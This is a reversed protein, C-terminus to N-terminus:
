KYNQMGTCMFTDGPYNNRHSIHAYKPYLWTIKAGRKKKDFDTSVCSLYICILILNITGNSRHVKKLIIKNIKQLTFIIKKSFKKAFNSKKFRKPFFSIKSSSIGQLTVKCFLKQFFFYMAFFYREFSM